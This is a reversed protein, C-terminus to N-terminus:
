PQRCRRLPAPVARAANPDLGQGSEGQLHGVIGAAQEPALGQGVFVDFASQGNDATAV